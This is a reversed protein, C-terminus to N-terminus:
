KWEGEDTLVFLIYLLVFLVLLFPVRYLAHFKSDEWEDRAMETWPDLM